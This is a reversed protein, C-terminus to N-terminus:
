SETRELLGTLLRAGTEADDVTVTFTRGSTRTVILAEGSRLIVGSGGPVVRYGYGGFRGLASVDGAVASGVDALPVHWRPRGLPGVAVTLGRGDVTTRSSSFALSLLGAAAAIVGPFTQVVLAVVVGALVLSTGIAQMPASTVTRSWAVREDPALDLSGGRTVPVGALVEAPAVRAGIGGAAVAVVLALLLLLPSLRVASADVADVNALVVVLATAGTLVSAAWSVGLLFRTTRAASVTGFVTALLVALGLSSWLLTTASSFGDATGDVGFHTASPEPLRDSWALLLVIAPLAAVLPPLSGFAIRRAPSTSSM